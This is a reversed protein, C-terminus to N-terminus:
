KEGNNTHPFTLLAPNTKCAFGSLLNRYLFLRNMSFSFGCREISAAILTQLELMSWALNLVCLFRFNWQFTLFLSINQM